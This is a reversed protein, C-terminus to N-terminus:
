NLNAGKRLMLRSPFLTFPLTDGYNSSKEAGTRALKILEDKIEFPSLVEFEGYDIGNAM